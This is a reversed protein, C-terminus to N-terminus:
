KMYKDLFDIVKNIHDLKFFVEDAHGVKEVLKLVVHEKGIAAAMKEALTISQPYPITPDGKGQTIYIPTSDKSVYTMPTATKCKEIITLLPAGMLLSEHSSAEHVHAEQGIELHHPDMMLFDTPGYWDVAAVVRSSQDANGMSLDELEKVGGTTALMAALYGGSSSGWAAIKDPNFHYKAANARIWRVAAKVDFILAPFIAEQSFRYNTSVVSYGRELMPLVLELMNVRALAMNSNGGKDGECFGGPHIWLIVPRPGTVRSPMYIDLKQAESQDAYALDRILTLDIRKGAQNDNGSHVSAEKGAM